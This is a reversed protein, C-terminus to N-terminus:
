NGDNFYLGQYAIAGATAELRVKWQLGDSEFGERSEMFPEERGDLFAVEVTDIVGRNPNAALFWKAADNADIRPEVIVTLQRFRNAGDVVVFGSTVGPSDDQGMATTLVNATGALAHPVILYEPMVNLTMRADPDTQVGMAAFAANLTTVSPAAGAGAAIFNGHDAHFLDTSDQGLTPNGLLITNYVMNGVVQAASVGMRQPVRGIADLDDNVLAERSITFLKGFKQMTLTEELDGITGEKYSQHELLEDLASFSTINVRKAPKYDSLPVVRCFPRWTEPASTYGLMLAKNSVNALISTFDTTAHGMLGSRKFAERAVASPSLTGARVGRQVLYSRALEILRLGAFENQAMAKKSEPSTDLGCRFLLSAEVGAAFKDSADAGPATAGRQQTDETGFQGVPQADAGQSARLLQLRAQEITCTENALCRQELADLMPGDMHPRSRSFEARIDIQRQREAQRGRAEGRAESDRIEQTIEVVNNEPAQIGGTDDNDVINNGTQQQISRNVGVSPDAPVSVLSGELPVWRTVLVQEPADKSEVVDFEEIAYSISMDRAIGGSIKDRWLVAVPDNDDFRLQGRLKKQELRINEVRGILQGMDHNVLLPLGDAARAMDVAADSHVLTEVGFWREVPAESSLSVEIPGSAGEDGARYELSFTRDLKEPINQSM